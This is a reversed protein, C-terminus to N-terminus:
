LFTIVRDADPPGTLPDDDLINKMLNYVAETGRGADIILKRALEDHIDINNIGELKKILMDIEDDSLIMDGDKDCADVVDIINGLVLNLKNDEMQDLVEKSQILQEELIDLSADEMERIEEFTETLDKLNSVSEKLEESKGTLQENEYRLNTLEREMAGNTETIAKVDTIKQQQYASYPPIIIGLIGTALVFPNSSLVLAIISIVVTAGALGTVIIELPTWSPIDQLVVDNAEPNLDEVDDFLAEGDHVKLGQGAEADM